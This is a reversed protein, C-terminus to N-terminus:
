IAKHSRRAPRRRPATGCVPHMGRGGGVPGGDDHGGGDDTTVGDDHTDTTVGDDHADTTEVEGGGDPCTCRFTTVNWGGAPGRCCTGNTCTARVFCPGAGSDDGSACGPSGLWLSGLVAVLVALACVSSKM